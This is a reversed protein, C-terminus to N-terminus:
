AAYATKSFKVSTDHTIICLAWLLTRNLKNSWMECCNGWVPQCYLMRPKVFADFLRRQVNVNASNGGRRIAGVMSSVKKSLTDVRLKWMLTDTLM